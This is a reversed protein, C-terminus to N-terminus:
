HVSRDAKLGQYFLKIVERQKNLLERFAQPDPVAATDKMCKSFAYLTELLLEATNRADVAKLEGHSIGKEFLTSLLSSERDSLHRRWTSYSALRSVEVHEAHAAFMFYREFFRAKVETIKLLAAEVSDSAKIENSLERIYDNSLKEVVVNILSQKDPFYYSLAQKSLALDEAVETLTTKAIGFHSFRKVAAEIIQDQRHQTTAKM